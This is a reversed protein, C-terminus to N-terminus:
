TKDYEGIDEDGFYVCINFIPYESIAYHELVSENFNITIEQNTSSM